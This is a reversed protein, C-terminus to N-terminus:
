LNWFRVYCYRKLQLLRLSDEGYNVDDDDDDNDDDGDDVDDDDDDGYHDEEDEDNTAVWRM